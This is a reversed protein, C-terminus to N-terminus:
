MKQIGLQSIAQKKAEQPSINPQSKSICSLVRDIEQWGVITYQGSEEMRDVLASCLFIGFIPDLNNSVEFKMVGIKQKEAWVNPVNYATLLMLLIVIRNLTKM